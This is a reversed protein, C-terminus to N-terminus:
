PKDKKLAEDIWELAMIRAEQEIYATTRKNIDLYAKARVALIQKDLWGKRSRFRDWSAQITKIWRLLYNVPIPFFIQVEKEFDAYALGYFWPPSTQGEYIEQRSIIM